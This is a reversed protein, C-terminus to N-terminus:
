GYIRTFRAAHYLLILMFKMAGNASASLAKAIGMMM